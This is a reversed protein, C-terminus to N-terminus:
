GHREEGDANWTAGSSDGNPEKRRGLFSERTVSHVEIGGPLIKNLRFGARQLLRKIVRNKAYCRVVVVRYNELVMDMWDSMALANRPNPNWFRVGVEAVGQNRPMLTALGVPVDDNMVWFYVPKADPDLELYPVSENTSRIGERAVEAQEDTLMGPEHMVLDM